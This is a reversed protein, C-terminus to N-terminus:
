HSVAFIRHYIADIYFGNVAHVRLADLWQPRLRAIIAIHLALLLVFSCVIAFLILSEGPVIATTAPQEVFQELAIYSGIYALCLLTIAVFGFFVAKVEGIAFLQWGCTTLALCFIFALVLGGPKSTVELGSIESVTLFVSVTAIAAAVFWAFGKAFSQTPLKARSTAQAQDVVSGSNLFAHAKYLSHAIIHLMAAVFAGLGCQLMMFGMQAITSYALARKVSPQTLMVLGGFCATFAGIAALTALASPAFAVLPSMRIILYGGANVIGAHMLASVPTPTEMTDPLWTHFPFQASKTVAGLVLLWGIAVHSATTPFAEVSSKVIKFLNDLDLTGYTKFILILSSILFVDGLRSIAFKTWAARRAAERHRYQLLLQHLGLSTMVWAAFFLLMNGAIVMLSVSGVTFSLWRFYRGQTAEGDLYRVSFRSVILGVFSVLALMLATTGDYYISLGLNNLPAQLFSISISSRGSVLSAIATAFALFFEFAVLLTVLKRFTTVKANALRSPLCATALLGLIPLLLSIVISEMAIHSWASSLRSTDLEIYSVYFFGPHARLISVVRSTWAAM